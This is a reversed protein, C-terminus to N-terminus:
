AEIMLQGDDNILIEGNDNVMFQLIDAGTNIHYFLQLFGSSFADNARTSGDDEIREENGESSVNNKSNMGSM